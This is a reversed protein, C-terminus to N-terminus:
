GTYPIREHDLLWAKTPIGRGWSYGTIRGEASLVRHCGM